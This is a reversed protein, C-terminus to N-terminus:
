GDVVDFLVGEKISLMGYVIELNDEKKRIYKSGIPPQHVSDEDRLKTPPVGDVGDIMSRTRRPKRAISDLHRPSQRGQGM